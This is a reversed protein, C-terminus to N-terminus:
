EGTKRIVGFSIGTFRELQRISLGKDKCIKIIADRKKKEFNQIETPSKIDGIKKIFDIAEPDKWRMNQDYELCQSSNKAANFEPFLKIATEPDESFLSLGFATSCVAPNETYESIKTM